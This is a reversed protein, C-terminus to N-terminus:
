SVKSLADYKPALIANYKTHGGGGGTRTQTYALSPVFTSKERHVKPEGNKKRENRGCKMQQGAFYPQENARVFFHAVHFYSATMLVDVRQRKASM